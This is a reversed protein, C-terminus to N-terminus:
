INFDLRNIKVYRNIYSDLPQLNTYHNLKLVEEETTASSSPIIHDIDWGYNLEGNYKGWNEWTMWTEFKSELYSKFDKPLIGLIEFTRSKKKYGNQKLTSRISSGINENLRKIINERRKRNYEEKNNKRVESRRLNIMDKNANYYKNKWKRRIERHESDYKLQRKKEKEKNNILYNKNYLKCCDSCNIKLLDKKSSDKTFESLEKDKKCTSCIKTNM